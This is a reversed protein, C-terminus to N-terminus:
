GNEIEEGKPLEPLYTWYAVPYLDQYDDYWSDTAPRYKLATTIQAGTIRVAYEGSEKPPEEKASYWRPMGKSRRGAEYGASYGNAYAHDSAAGDEIDFLRRGNDQLVQYVGRGFAEIIRERDDGLNLQTQEEIGHMIEHWLSLCKYEHSAEEMIAIECETHRIQGALLRQGDNMRSEMNVAYEVGGIRVSKPIKM